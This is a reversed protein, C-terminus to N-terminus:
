AAISGFKRQAAQDGPGLRYVGTALWIVLILGIGLVIIGGVGGGGLRSTVKGLNTKFGGIIKDFDLEPQRPGGPPFM